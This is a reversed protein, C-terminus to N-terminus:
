QEPWGAQVDVADLAAVDEAALVAQKLGRAHRHLADAYAALALPMGAVGAADLTLVSNDACTWDLSFPQGTALAAQAAMAATTMRQVARPDCDILKGRYRFVGAERRDREANIRQGAAEIHASLSKDRPVPVADHWDIYGGTAEATLLAAHQAESIPVADDPIADGHIASDFFGRATRSAYIM